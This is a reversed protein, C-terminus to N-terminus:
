KKEIALGSDILGFLDFGKSLLHRTIDFWEPPSTYNEHALSTFVAKPNTVAYRGGTAFWIEKAEEETM